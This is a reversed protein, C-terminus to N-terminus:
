HKILLRKQDILGNKGYINLWYAGAQLGELRLEHRDQIQDVGHKLLVRGLIDIVELSQVEDDLQKTVVTAVSVAPNPYVTVSPVILTAVLAVPTSQNCSNAEGGDTITWGLNAILNTRASLGTCYRSNGGDFIVNPQISVLNNWGILLADYNTNSLRVGSFMSSMNEVLRINWNGLDQDFSNARQFMSAMNQVRRVNWAGINQNFARARNFMFSMDFVRSVDWNGINQNFVEARDFMRSMDRVEGVNWNSIDQNFNTARRFMGSMNRVSSVNWNGIDQNFITANRFMGSMNRVKSVDWNSISIDFFSANNFLFRMDTVNSVDWQNFSAGASLSSCDQFMRRMSTVQSLNPTDSATVNFNSCGYYAREMSTWHINGWQVLNLLKKADGSNNFYIRPFDGSISVRYMGPTQYTHTIDGTVGVDFSGDGWDVTYNYTEGPFTPITVQNNQSIGPHNTNWTAIFAGSPPSFGNDVIGWNYTDIIFQRANAGLFFQSNGADFNLNSQLVLNAWGILLADYNSTSLTVDQFILDLDLVNSVNWGGLNQDFSIAGSFMARLSTVSSVNWSGIASNFALANLFMSGMTTVSSVNWSSIDAAFATANSFMSQMTTVNSCNWNGIPQNFVSAGSFLFAMTTVSSVDWGSIDANFAECNAFMGSMDTVNGVNWSGLDQDFVMCDFFMNAMTTVASVNWGGINQNFLVAGSFMREMLTVNAVNWLGINQNFVIANQFMRTMNIVASVNWGSIDQNFVTCGRFLESMDTVAGVNWGGLPQDFASCGFFMASMNTVSSVNWSDLSQNFAFAERFMSAMTTVQAVNWAGIVQNFLTCGQFLATMDTIASVDWTNFVATGILASCGLFMRALSRVNTFDPIDTAAVDLNVCGHFAGEMNSWVRDGWQLVALLKQADGGGNFYIRPFQGSISVEYTGVTAYTHTISGTVGTSTTGDGWDVTYNYTEGPFTPITIQNPGSVGPNDTKWRTIFPRDPCNVGGDIITWGYTDVITTRATESFCYTTNTGATFVVNPQLVPLSSWGALIADYNVLSLTVGSFMRNMTTVNGVNWSGISQDFVTAGFFMDAMTTVATVNWTDINQNFAVADRFMAATTTVASTNWNAINANFATAGRFMEFMDTVAGVNWSGIPQNFAVADKFMATMLTCTSVDWGSIDQNFVTAGEFMSITTQLGNINWLGINQNFAIANRFMRAVQRVSTVNWSSIDQNFATANEFMAGMTIVASVNWGGIPQNFLVAGNFMGAMSTVSSVNWSGINQNFAACGFFMNSMDTVNGVDWSGIDGNFAVCGSFLASMNTVSSVNWLNLDQNFASCGFFMSAMNTVNGVNWSGINQNFQIAGSFASNMNTVNGVNWDGINQDFRICGEFVRSMDTVSSVNWTNFIPTGILSICQLFMRSISSVLALDPVDTATVDLNICGHFAAEMSSWLVGGWQLVDLIKPADGGGNFFIRPFDGSISVTFTGPATYTHTIDGTVGSDSTGDGWDVTYNYTEGSFTPITIQNAVSSGPNDTKWVTVFPTQPCVRGGDIITWGYTDIIQQRADEGFCFVNNEGADFTVNPQLTALTSWGELIVDYNELSLTTGLLIRNMNTVLGVNWNGISQNFSAAGSFMDAMTTVTGVNWLNINQNFSIADRFMAAMNIVLATNWSSIDANFSEAGRFMEFMDTSASTDWSGIPQNFAIANKFMATMLTCSSLDWGSIDQNFVTAGEFMSVATQIGNINWLGVNQNFAVANRFMRAVQRVLSVDWASIDQNFARAEEFMSVMNQVARVNWSGIPQNFVIAGRFLSAMSTVASVNWGGINQNFAACGSFMADVNTVSALNWASIDQNFLIADQFASSMLTITSTDWLGFDNTGVLSSCGQFIGSFDTVGSLNPTDTAIVDLNTCGYFANQFSNWSISGWQQVTLLKQRDGGNNFYIRPFQGSITVTYIGAATYTHTISGTVGTDMTGDGWDITYNYTEGPFTPITIQNPGSVGPNDTKWTTVFPADPCNRGGDTITWGFNDILDQRANESDCFQSSGGSFFLNPRLDLTSWGNLLSDYNDVSLSVGRLMSGVNTVNSVDWLGLDQNFAIANFFMSQMTTVSSVNWSEIPQNFSRAAAFMSNMNTVNGVDWNGIDQNFKDATNFMNEMNMVFSVDWNGIDQNFSRAAGFMRSMSTVNGVDWDGIDSNFATASFFMEDMNSVSGVDWNSLDGNFSTASKFMRTMHKVQSVDWNELSQDFSSAGNFVSRMSTCSSLNWGGIDQNFSTAGEFMNNMYRVNGMDWFGINQNFSTANKFMGSVMIFNSTNWGSIDQNFSTANTFMNSITIVSSVDWSGIDQNFASAGNFMNAMDTVAGVRWTSIDQNFQEAFTFMNQISTASGMDWGGLDQNFVRANHFMGGFTQISSVDWNSFSTNGVLARCGNFMQFANTVNSFDPLDTAIVDLNICGYFSREMSTWSITGWNEVTILKEKDGTNNFYIRPFDGSISITYTGPATYTHTIDGTIETDFTGDGWDVAYNYVAGPFTPITIQNSASVGPNDTKWTTVFPLQPCNLGGDTITWNFTDIIAQRANEGFCYPSNGGDFVVNAQLTLQGWEELLADYNQLSLTVGEFMDSMDTVNSVNWNSLDQDFSVARSFMGIMTSVASVNWSGIDQNFAIADRFMRNMNTVNAVNWNGIDQDFSQLGSFMASMDTVNSVDWSSIDQNFANAGSFMSIMSSVSSVNWTGINQNFSRASSFMGGMNVVNGVNWNEINQNFDTTFRFMAGMDTVASVDWENFSSNGVLSFCENFMGGASTVNGLDPVDTAVVDLNNCGNFAGLMSNWKITGWNEITLLKTDDGGNNFFIRPFEGTISVVYIGPAAYTHTINGSVGTNSTGDGWDISYNYSEGSFTPITIQNPGSTGPNDTKWTTVFPLQPCDLGGDTITWNFTDIITQRASEGFCYASNGGDFTLNPQLTLASWGILISDYNELSLSIGKFMDTINEVDSINWAGLDQDFATANSFMADMRQVKGVDWSGIDQNFATNDRFMNGILIINSVDWNGIDQNFPCDAFMGSTNSVNSVDWNGIDQNFSSGIFMLSMNVVNSVNWGSIDQNFASAVAFMSNMQTVKGVDWSGIDQNFATASQFMNGMDTVNSVNWGGIDQNFQNTSRFMFKMDTVNGVDWNGVEQNFILAASFMNRMNTVTSVDWLNFSSNGVLSSCGLFMGEMDTVQSLNPVDTAVVDLNSCGRFAGNMSTWIIDGWSEVTLIKARDTNDDAFSIRPFDGSISITYTGPVAYTHTIDGTIGLDSSGDGWDVTYNYTEGPFTPITIQNPGSVGPNDTKWTTVFPADPCDRGADTITWGFTDIIQERATDGFCYANTGGDFVVNPQLPLAGWGVWIADYNQLSLTVGSFLNAMTTVNSVNWGGLDQDFSVCGSFTGAMTTVAGVNWSGIDQNFNTANSFMAIMSTVKATDWNGIDQNFNSASSFMASMDTVDGVNWNGIDQNFLTARTFMNSMDTVNGVDWNGIDQNFVSAGSFVTEMRTCNSVDWDNFSLTGRLSSCERFMLTISTVNSLNPIDMAIVDLNSCGNFASNMSTWEIDGWQEVTLIKDKDGRNDFVIRPFDGTISVTYIGATAYTHTADGTETTPISSDGWDVIYNYSSSVITPITISENAMTTEWTTIFPRQVVCNPARGGDTITWGFSDLLNQRAEEGLCYQSNGGRFTVNNPVQTEGTDLNAWGNLLSDYNETSLSIGVFMDRANVLSSIDWNGIDQNFSVANAFMSGMSTVKSVNWLSLDQDFSAAGSFMAGMNTVNGVNWNGIDQNFATAQSFMVGMSTASAVNWNSIDQNFSAAGSFMSDMNTVQAVNWTGIAQNFSTANSFMNSMLTVNSVNWNSIDQDFASANRFMSTMDTVTSVEWTGIPQNFASAGSFMVRMNTVNATNWSGIEQNFTSANNFMASMSTVNSVDWNGINQNFASCGNFMESLLLVNSIDWDNFSPNGVMSSCRSFAARMNTVQSLDPTDTATIDLNSCGTFIFDWNPWVIDGWQSVTLLKQADTLTGSSDQFRLSFDGTISVTYTGPVTYTHSATLANTINEIPSGDGWDVQYDVATTRHPIIIINSDSIGPNDTKWTTIFPQEVVCDTAKGGDNITWGYNDIMNQRDSEGQCYQRDGVGFTVNSQLNLSNWSILINDYNAVSLNTGTFMQVMDTVNGVDWTGLNQNFSSAGTFMQRMTTVSAVDWDGIDQNFSTANRFMEVMNTVAGVNWQGIDQNFAVAAIFMLRMDTVSSVNWNGIDQDFLLTREFMGIMTNVSGVNWSGIDQNFKQAKYFMRGMNTVSSVDWDDIPQDFAITSGFMGGMDTVSSVDWNGIPQNFAITSGFMGLMNTVSSVDWNGIDQNFVSASNFMSGMNTVSAVNWNGINQNFVKAGQFMGAMSVVNGVDWNGIDQNFVVADRFMSNMSSVNGVDWGGIDQNFVVADRFMSNMSTVNGVDWGSIDQNFLSAGYFMIDMDTVNGVNWNGIDQNFAVANNFMGFMNVASGVDWNGIDQNFASAGSFMYRMNTVNSVNWNSIDQNFQIAESFIGDLINVNGLDWNDFATNGILNTCGSFMQRMNTVNSLDPVDTAMVDLNTCRFFANEMNVWQLNGWNEVTLIKERDTDIRAFSIRPFVGSISVTYTGPIAYTHTINGTVDSDSTGDGWDITYDYTEGSFTPITIQNFSSGGSNDTKWTTVFADSPTSPANLDFVRALGKFNANNITGVNGVGLRSGDINLTVSTGFQDGQFTGNLDDGFQTWIGSELRFLQVHGVGTLGENEHSRAGVALTNGDGSLAIAEGFRDGANEGDIDQGLQVWNGGQLAYVRVHGSDLGNGDNFIAGVALRTGADDLSVTYGSEDDQAEGDIDDGVQVWANGNYSFVRVHGADNATGDNTRGGIAVVTGSENLSVDYGFNDNAGEGDIDAGLQQWDTGNFEFIRTHGYRIVSANTRNAYAGIAVRNGDGSISVAAGSFDGAAEGVIPNGLPVWDGGSFEFMRTHGSNTGNDDNLRAGVAVRNGNSSLSVDYGFRDGEVLGDIDSGLQVWDNAVYEYVRAHGTNPGADNLNRLAGIAIRDGNASLSSSFGFLSQSTEGVIDTGLQAFQAVGLFPLLLLLQFCYHKKM